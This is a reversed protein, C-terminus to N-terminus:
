SPLLLPLQKQSWTLGMKRGLKRAPGLALSGCSGTTAGPVVHHAQQVGPVWQPQEGMEVWCLEPRPRAGEGENGGDGACTEAGPPRM